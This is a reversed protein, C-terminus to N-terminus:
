LNMIKFNDVRLHNKYSRIGFYGSTYQNGISIDFILSDNCYFQSSEKTAIIRIKNKKNPIILYKADDLDHQPELPREGNGLYKRFRTKTNDHGGM